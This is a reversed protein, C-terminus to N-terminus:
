PLRRETAQRERASAAVDRRMADRTGAVAIFAWTAALLTEPEVALLALPVVVKGKSGVLGALPGFVYREYARWPADVAAARVVLQRFRVGRSQYARLEAGQVAAWAIVDLGPVHLGRADLRLAYGARLCRVLGASALALLWFCFAILVACVLDDEVDPDGRRVAVLAAIAGVLAVVFAGHLLWRPQVVLTEAHLTAARSM